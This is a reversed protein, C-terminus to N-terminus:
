HAPTGLAVGVGPSPICVLHGGAGAGALGEVGGGEEGAELGGTILEAKAVVGGM